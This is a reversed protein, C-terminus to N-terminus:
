SCTRSGCAGSRQAKLGIYARTDSSRQHWRAAAEISEALILCRVEELAV